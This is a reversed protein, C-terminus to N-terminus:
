KGLLYTVFSKATWVFFGLLAALATGFVKDVYSRPAFLTPADKIFTATEKNCDKIDDIAEKIYKVDTKMGVIDLGHEIQTNKIDKFDESM